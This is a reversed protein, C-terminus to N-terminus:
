YVDRRYRGAEALSDVAAHGLIDILVADVAPAMGKLSGCVYIAAGDAVWARLTDASGRLSDQVYGGPEDRSFAVDLRELAGSATWGAIEERFYFDHVANREGFLLWNRDHGAHIRAKLHARLGALGTGNGILIMPQAGNAGHFATNRRIRLAVESGVPAHVTLWGSGLGYGDATRTQRVLLELRGDQPISAISYERHPLPKLRDALDQASWGVTDAAAPLLRESLISALTRQQGDATVPAAADRGTAKLFAEVTRPDHRPGIEAIDGAQWVLDGQTSPELVVHFTPLGVSGPNLATRGALRWSQYDPQVWDPSANAGSLAGLQAQWHRLAGPDNGDVEVRDFLPTAGQTRLWLDLDRGFGCFSTYSREGLALVGYDLQTLATSQGMVKRVFARAADPPQGEGFTSVVFLARKAGALTEAALGDLATVQVPLGAAQLAGASQWALREATGSQSAFAVLVPEAAAEGMGAAMAEGAIGAAQVARAAERKKRRRDLYLMWGTVAFLPMLLSAIMMLITGPLGFYSGAHLPFLSATLKQGAPLDDYRRHERVKGTADLVLTNNAREHAPDPSQYSITLAGNGGQPLRLTATSYGGSEKEFVAWLNAIDLPAPRGAGERPRAPQGQPGAGPQMQAQPSGGPTGQASATRGPGGQGQAAQVPAGPPPAGPPGGRQAPRPTGTIDFLAGRYWDYSWTLGTLAALLYFPLVWTGIISHLEWLLSRGRRSLDIAFWRRWELMKRPWRLYLGSLSLFILLVTSAGVIQKGVEGAALWRHVFMIFRLTEQGAPTGLLAGDYPNVYRMEGRPGQAGPPPAFMVRAPREPDASVTLSAITKDPQAARIRMLLADPALLPTQQPTVTLIGPNLARLIDDEFSLLGGTVGVVALVVGATIGIFWHLQFLIAKLM